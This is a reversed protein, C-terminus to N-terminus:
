PKETDTTQRGTNDNDPVATATDTPSDSGATAEDDTLTEDLKEKAPDSPPPGQARFGPRAGLLDVNTDM